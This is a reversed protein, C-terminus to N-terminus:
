KRFSHAAILRGSLGRLFVANVHDVILPESSAVLPRVIYLGHAGTSWHLGDVAQGRENVLDDAVSLRQNQM